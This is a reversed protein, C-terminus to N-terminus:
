PEEALAIKFQATYKPQKPTDFSGKYNGTLWFTATDGATGTPEIKGLLAEPAGPAM